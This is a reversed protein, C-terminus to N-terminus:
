PQFTNFIIHIAILNQKHHLMVQHRLYMLLTNNQYININDKQIRQWRYTVDFSTWASCSPILPTGDSIFIELLIVIKQGGSLLLGHTKLRDERGEWYLFIARAFIVPLLNWKWCITPVIVLPKCNLKHASNVSKAALLMFLCQLASNFIVYGKHKVNNYQSHKRDKKNTWENWNQKQIFSNLITWHFLPAQLQEKEGNVTSHIIRISSITYWSLWKLVVAKSIAFWPNAQTHYIDFTTLHVCETMGEVDIAMKFVGWLSKVMNFSGLDGWRNLRQGAVRWKTHCGSLDKIFM